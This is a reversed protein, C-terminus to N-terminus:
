EKSRVGLATICSTLAVLLDAICTMTEPPLTEALKPQWRSIYRHAINLVNRLGPVYTKASM